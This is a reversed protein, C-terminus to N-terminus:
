TAWRKSREVGDHWRDLLRRRAAAPMTPEFVREVRRAGEIASADSFFGAEIGALLAAGLATTELVAPREVPLSLVDAQLQMLLDNATAGGDVGLRALPVGADGEMAGVVEAVWL